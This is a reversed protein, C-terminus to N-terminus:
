CLYKKLLQLLQEFPTPTYKTRTSIEMRSIISVKTNIREALGFSWTEANTIIFPFPECVGNQKLAIHVERIVQATESSTEFLSTNVAGKKVEILLKLKESNRPDGQESIIILFDTFVSHGGVSPQCKIKLKKRREEPLMRFVTVLVMVVRISADMETVNVFMEDMERFVSEVKKVDQNEVQSLEKMLETGNGFKLSHLIKKADNWTM